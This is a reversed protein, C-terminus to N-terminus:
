HSSNSALVPPPNSMCKTRDYSDKEEDDNDDDDDDNDNGGINTRQPQMQAVRATLPQLFPYFSVSFSFVHFIWGFSVCVGGVSM